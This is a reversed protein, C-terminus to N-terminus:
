VKVTRKPFHHSVVKQLTLYTYVKKTADLSSPSIPESFLKKLIIDPIIERLALPNQLKHLKIYKSLHSTIDTRAVPVGSKVNIRPWNDYEEQCSPTFAPDKM